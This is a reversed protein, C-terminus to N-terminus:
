VPFGIHIHDQSHNLAVADPVNIQNSTTVNNTKPNEQLIESIVFNLQKRDQLKMVETKFNM